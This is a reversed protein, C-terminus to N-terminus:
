NRIPYNSFEQLATDIPIAFNLNEIDKGLLGCTSIGIVKGDEKILPGGSNGHNMTTDTQIWQKGNFEVWASLIGSSVSHIMNGLPNGIAYVRDGVSCQSKEAPAISTIEYSDCKLLAVDHTGSISLVSVSLTKKNLFIAEVKTLKEYIEIRQKYEKKRKDYEPKSRSYEYELYTRQRGHAINERIRNKLYIFRADKQELYVEEQKLWHQEKDAWNTANSLEPFYENDKIFIHRNTLIYGNESIFFGSGCGMPTKIGVTADRAQQIYKQTAKTDVSVKEISEEDKVIEYQDIRGSGDQQNEKKIRTISPSLALQTKNLSPQSKGSEIRDFNILMLIGVTLIMLFLLTLSAKSAKNNVPSYSPITPEFGTSTGCNPCFNPRTQFKNGCGRCYNHSSTSEKTSVTDYLEEVNKKAQKAIYKLFIIGCIECEDSRNQNHGCKPCIIQGPEKQGLLEAKYSFSAECKPCKMNTDKDSIKSHDIQYIAQCKPCQVKGLNTGTHYPTCVNPKNGKSQYATEM